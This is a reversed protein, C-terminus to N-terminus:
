PREGVVSIGAFLVQQQVQLGVPVQLVHGARLAARFDSEGLEFSGIPDDASVDKDRLSVRLRVAPSLEVGTWTPSDEWRPTCTDRQSKLALVQGHVGGIMLEATGVPEPKEIGQMMPDALAALVAAQPAQTVLAAALRSTVAEPVRGLGDWPSGGLKSPAITADILSITVHKHTLAGAQSEASQGGGCAVGAAAFGLHILRLRLFRCTASM